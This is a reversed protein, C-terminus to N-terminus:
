DNVPTREAPLRPEAGHRSLWQGTAARGATVLAAAPRLDRPGSGVDTVLGAVWADGIHPIVRVRPDNRAATVSARNAVARAVSFAQLLVDVMGHSREVPPVFPERGPVSGLGCSPEIGDTGPWCTVPAGGCDIVVVTDDPAAEDLAAAVPVGCVIGGDVHLHGDGLRVPAFLGPLACSAALVDVVDGASHHRADGCQLCTTTVHVPVALESVDHAPVTGAVLARLPRDDLLGRARRRVMAPLGRLHSRWGPMLLRSSSGDAWWDALERARDVDPRAALFAANLAGVSSGYVVDPVIGAELLALVAGAQYAGLAGGAGLVFLTRGSM